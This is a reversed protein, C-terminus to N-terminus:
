SGDTAHRSSSRSPSGWWRRSTVSEVNQRRPSWLAGAASLAEETLRIRQDDTFHLRRPGLQERLVRNETQLYEIVERQQQNIWGALAVVLFQLPHSLTPM